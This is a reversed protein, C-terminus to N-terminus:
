SGEDGDDAPSADSGRAPATALLRVGKPELGAEDALALLLRTMDGMRPPKDDGSNVAIRIEGERATGSALYPRVDLRYPRGKRSGEVEIRDRTMWRKLALESEARRARHELALRYAGTEVSPAGGERVEVISFGPPLQEDIRAKLIETDGPSELRFAVWEAEVALGLPLARSTSLRIHPNMGRTFVLKLGARRLARELIRLTDLHSLFVGDGSKSYALSYTSYTITREM